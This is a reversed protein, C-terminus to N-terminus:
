MHGIKGLELMDTSFTGVWPKGVGLNGWCRDAIMRMALVRPCPCSTVEGAAYLGEIPTGTGQSLAVGQPTRSTGKSSTFDALCVANSSRWGLCASVNRFRCVSWGSEPLILDNRGGFTRQVEKLLITDKKCTLDIGSGRGSVNSIEISVM